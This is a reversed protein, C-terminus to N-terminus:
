EGTSISPSDPTNPECPKRVLLRRIEAPTAIRGALVVKGDIAITTLLLSGLPARSLQRLAYRDSAFAFTAPQVELLPLLQDLKLKRCDHVPAAAPAPRDIHVSGPISDGVTHLASRSVLELRNLSRYSNTIRCDDLRQYHIQELGAQRRVTRHRFPYEAQVPDPFYGAESNWLLRKLPNHLGFPIINAAIVDAGM